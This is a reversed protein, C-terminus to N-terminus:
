VPAAALELTEDFSRRKILPDAHRHLRIWRDGDKRFVQTTRLVWAQMEDRGEFRVTSREIMVLVLLTGSSMWHVLECTSSGGRFRAAIRPQVAAFEPGNRVLEGGFPGFITMDEAQIMKRTVTQELQGEIWSQVGRSMDEFLSRVDDETIEM